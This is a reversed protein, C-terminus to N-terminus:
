PLSRSQSVRSFEANVLISSPVEGSEIYGSNENSSQRKEFNVALYRFDYINLQLM